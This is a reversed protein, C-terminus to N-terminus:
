KILPSYSYGSLNNNPTPSNNVYRSNTVRKRASTSGSSGATTKRASSGRLEVLYVHNIPLNMDLYGINKYTKLIKGNRGDYINVIPYKKNFKITQSGNASSLREEDYTAIWVSGDSKYMLVNKIGLPFKGAAKQNTFTINIDKSPLNKGKSDTLLTTTHHWYDAFARKTGDTKFFSVVNSMDDHLAYVFLGTNGLLYASFPAMHMFDSNVADSQRSTKYTGFETTDVPKGDVSYAALNGIRHLATSPPVGPNMYTHANGFDAPPKGFKKYNGEYLPSKWGGGVSLQAVPLGIAKGTTYVTAQLKASDALSAGRSIPYATDPENSGEIVDILGPHAVAWKKIRELAVRQNKPSTQPLTAHFPTGLASHVARWKSLVADTTAWDRVRRAGIYKLQDITLNVDAHNSQCCNDLHLNVGFMKTLVTETGVATAALASPSATILLTSCIALFSNKAINITM